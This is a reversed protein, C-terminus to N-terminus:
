EIWVLNYNFCNRNVSKSNKRPANSYHWPYRAVEIKCDKDKFLALDEKKAFYIPDYKKLTADDTPVKKAYLTFNFM